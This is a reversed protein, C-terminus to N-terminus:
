PLTGKEIFYQAELSMVASFAYCGGCGGQNRVPNVAGKSRWDLSDPYDQLRRGGASPTVEEAALAFQPKFGQL